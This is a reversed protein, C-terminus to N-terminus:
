DRLLCCTNANGSSINAVSVDDFPACKIATFGEAVARDANHAFGVPSRDVTARNINAYLRIKERFKGGLLQYCPVDLTKGMLDSMAQEIGSLATHYAHSETDRYFRQRFAELQFPNWGVLTSKLTNVIHQVRADDGGHSAEGVGVTGDDAYVKVFLWNGRHNVQVVETEINAIKLTSM